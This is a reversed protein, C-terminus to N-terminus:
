FGEADISFYRYADEPYLFTKHLGLTPEVRYEKEIYNYFIKGYKSHAVMIISNQKIFEKISEVAEQIEIQKELSM